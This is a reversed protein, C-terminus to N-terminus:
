PQEGDAVKLSEALAPTTVPDYRMRCRLKRVGDADEFQQPFVESFEPRQELRTLLEFAEEQTRAVAELELELHGLQQRPALSVIRVGDPVVQELRALVGTWCFARQDVLQKLEAWQELQTAEVSAEGLASRATMRRLKAELRDAEEFRASSSQPLLQRAVLVHVVTMALAASWALGLLLRPLRENRFPRTALNLPVNV